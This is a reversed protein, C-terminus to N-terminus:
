GALRMNGMPHLGTNVGAAAVGPVARSAAAAARPLVRDPAACGSVAAAAAAGADDAGARAARRARRQQMRSSRRAAAREVGALLMLSLAVEAVVLAKRLMAQRSGGALSRGAERMPTALDRRSGHLAPALGCLISTLASVLLTFVLM